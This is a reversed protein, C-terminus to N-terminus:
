SGMTIPMSTGALSILNTVFTQWTYGCCSTWTLLLNLEIWKCLACVKVDL